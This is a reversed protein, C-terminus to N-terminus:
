GAFFLVQLGFGQARLRSKRLCRRRGARSSASSTTTNSRATRCRWALRDSPCGRCPLAPLRRNRVCCVSSATPRFTDKSSTDASSLPTVRRRNRHSATATKISTIDDVDMSKVTFGQSRMHEIWKSCCGCTPSKYVTVSPAASQARSEGGSVLAVTLIIGSTSLRNM